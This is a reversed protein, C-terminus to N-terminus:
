HERGEEEMMKKTYKLSATMQEMMYITYEFGCKTEQNLEDFIMNVEEWALNVWEEMQEYTPKFM